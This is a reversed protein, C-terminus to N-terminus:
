GAPLTFHFVSGRGPEPEVWIRGGQREVIRRCIALGIGSGGDQERPNLRQFLDFIRRHSGPELGIGNDAVAFDWGEDTREVTCHVRPPVDRRFRVANAILNQFLLVLESRVGRVVPLTDRTVRADSEVISARLNELAADFAASADVEERFRSGIGVRAYRLLDTILHQLRVAGAVAGDLLETGDAPLSERHKMDLLQLFGSITRLPEQIDHSAAYAFRELDENSRELERTKEALAQRSEELQTVDMGYIQACGLDRVGQVFFQWCRDAQREAHILTSAGDICAALDVAAFGPLVSVLTAGVQPALRARAVPNAMTIRGTADVRMVIGPSCEAFLAMLRVDDMKPLREDVPDLGPIDNMSAAIAMM